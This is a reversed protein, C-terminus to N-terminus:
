SILLENWNKYYKSDFINVHLFNYPADFVYDYLQQSKEKTLGNLCEHKVADWEEGNRPKFLILNTLQRRIESKPLMYYYQAVFWWSCCLHRTKKILRKLESALEDKLESGFDDIIILSYELPTRNTICDEKIQRLEDAIQELKKISIEHFVKDHNSFPSNEISSFSEEPCFYYINDFKGRFYKSSKMMGNLLSSKGSGGAGVWACVHGNRNPLNPNVNNIFIDMKELTPKLKPLDSQIEKITTM